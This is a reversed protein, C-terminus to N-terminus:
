RLIRTSNLRHRQKELAAKRTLQDYTLRKRLVQALALAFRGAGGIEEEDRNNYRLTEEGLYRALHFPEVSVYTGKVGRKL